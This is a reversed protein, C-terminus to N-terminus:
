NGPAAAQDDRSPSRLPEVVHVYLDNRRPPFPTPPPARVVSKCRAFNLLLRRSSATPTPTLVPNLPWDLVSPLLHPLALAPRPWALCLLPLLCTLDSPLQRCRCFHFKSDPKTPNRSAPSTRAFSSWVLYALLYVPLGPGAFCLLQLQSVPLVDLAM